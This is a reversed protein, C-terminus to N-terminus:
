RYFIAGFGTQSADTCIFMTEVIQDQIITARGNFIRAFSFWWDLDAKVEHGLQGVARDHPLSRILDILRRTFVRGGRVVYSCHSLYGVLSQLELKTASERGQFSEVMPFLRSLKEVPLSYEMSITNINVGLYIVSQSPLILKADSVEFGLKRLIHVLFKQARNCSEEDEGHVLFDDIYNTCKVYGYRHMVRVIFDSLCTFVFPACKLGFSLRNDTFWHGGM